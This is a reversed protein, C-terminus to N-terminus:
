GVPRRYVIRGELVTLEVRAESIETPEIAHLDRDLVVLDGLKGVTVSGTEAEMDGALAGGMTYARLMQDLTVVEEPIWAVGEDLRPNVRRMATEIALLPNMSTVSWDSGAAVIAGTAIVSAIPYLWRSREPGLRPETLDRIYSDEYAWLPQFSAVVDLEAFRRVDASDFLQIHAMIHRPGAGGDRDRQREFADLAIRIARDGIAHVHVKFGADDLAAVLRALTDAPLNLEGRWSSQDVYPELLAATAGEIVGDLFVKAAVPRVLEGAYRDRLAALEAVQETGRAPDVRLAVIARATLTGEEEAQAYARVISEDASAEHVTTIGFSAAMTLGRDLGASVEEPTYAPVHRGVLGMASERLTGQPGGNTLRIIVGDPPPNPTDATVGAIALARSSVWASHADGSTLYAPRDGVLSDLLAASPAGEPFVPLPWGGGRIWAGEPSGAVCEEIIRLVDERTAASNLDCDGLEIGGSAPHVHTDHFGPLVARGDLELVETAPGVLASAGADDGVYVIRDAAVAVASAVPQADDMTRVVGGRLVLDASEGGGAGGCAGLVVSALALATRRSRV